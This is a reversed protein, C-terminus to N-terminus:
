EGSLTGRAHGLDRLVLLEEDSPAARTGARHTMRREKKRQNWEACGTGPPLRGPSNANWGNFFGSATAIKARAGFGPLTLVRSIGNSPLVPAASKWATSM